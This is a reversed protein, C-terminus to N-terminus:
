ASLGAHGTRHRSEQDLYASPPSPVFAAPVSPYSAAHGCRLISCVRRPMLPRRTRVQAPARRAQHQGRVHRETHPAIRSRGRELNNRSALTQPHSAGLVRESDALTREYLPIAKGPWGASQYAYALNYRSTLTDPRDAGLVGPVLFPETLGDIRDGRQGRGLGAVGFEGGDDAAVPQDLVAQVPDAIQVPVLVSGLDAGGASWPDHRGQAVQGDRDQPQGAVGADGSGQAVV